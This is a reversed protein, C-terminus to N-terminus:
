GNNCDVCIGYTGPAFNDVLNLCYYCIKLRKGVGELVESANCDYYNTTINVIDKIMPQIEEPKLISFIGHKEMTQLIKNVMYSGQHNSM